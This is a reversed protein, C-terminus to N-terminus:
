FKWEKWLETCIYRLYNPHTNTNSDTRLLRNDLYLSKKWIYDDGYILLISNRNRNKDIRSYHQYKFFKLVRCSYRWALMCILRAAICSCSRPRLLKLCLLIQVYFISPIAWFLWCLRIIWGGITSTSLISQMGPIALFFRLRISTLAFVHM